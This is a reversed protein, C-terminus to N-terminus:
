AEGRRRDFADGPSSLGVTRRDFLFDDGPSILVREPPRRAREAEGVPRRTIVTAGLLGGPCRRCCVGLALRSFESLRDNCLDSRCCLCQSCGSFM